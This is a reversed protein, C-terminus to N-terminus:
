ALKLVGRPDDKPASKARTRRKTTREAASEGKEIEWQLRRRAITSLGFREDQLRIETAAARRASASDASWFDQRLVALEYLGGRMDAGLFEAAMPSRWVSTWWEIVMAHWPVPDGLEDKLEPLDPVEFNASEASSPLTAATTTKNRRQRLHAPKPTPGPM